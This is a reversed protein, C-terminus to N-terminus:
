NVPIVRAALGSFFDNVAGGFLTVGAIAALAILAVLMGYEVLDQGDDDRVLQMLMRVM